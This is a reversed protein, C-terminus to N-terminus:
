KPAAPPPDDDTRQRFVVVATDFPAPYEAGDFHLRGPLYRVEYFPLIIQQWIKNGPRAPLVMVTTVGNQAELHAKRVWRSTHQFPPNCFAVHGAWSQSLGDRQETFYVPLLANEESAAADLTFRFERHLQEFLHRPTRWDQRRHYSQKPKGAGSPRGPKRHGVANLDSKGVMWRGGVRHARLRGSAIMARVRRDSVGLRAAAEPVSMWRAM